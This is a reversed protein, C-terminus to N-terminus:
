DYRHVKLIALMENAKALDDTIVKKMGATITLGSAKNLVTIADHPRNTEIYVEALNTMAPVYGPDVRIASKCALEAGIYDKSKAMADAMNSYAAAFDPSLEVAKRYQAIAEAYKKLDALANGYNCYHVSYHPYTAIAMKFQEIAERPKGQEELAIGRENFECSRGFAERKSRGSVREPPTEFAFASANSSFTLLLFSALPYILQRQPTM